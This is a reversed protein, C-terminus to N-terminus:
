RIYGLERLARAEREAPLLREAEEGERYTKLLDAKYDSLRAMAEAHGPDAADFLDRAEWPDRRLDFAERRWDGGDPRRIKYVTDGERLAVWILSPDESPFLARAFEWDARRGASHMRKFVSRVLITTHSYARLDPGPEGAVLAESLDVGPVGSAEPLPIGSLGMITPFVDISRTVGEHIGPKLGPARILLPVNLVERALQMSHSWQFPAGERFLLEGHDATFLILSEDLLERARVASVVAGFRRDLESVNSKYLLELVDKLERVEAPTLGLRQITAATNWSLGLHNERHLRAYKEVTAAPIARGELPYRNRFRALRSTQYPSHTVTFNTMVFAKFDPDSRVRDLIEVFRADDARLPRAFQNAHAVGQAYNLAPDAMPHGAWFFTEYGHDAYAEAMLTLEDSLRTPHRYLGHHDAQGGSFISAYAIGSSGSETQHREFVIAENAFEELHPTFSVSPHYPSLYERTVTCPAYLIVLRPPHRSAECATLFLLAAAGLTWQSFLSRAMAPFDIM